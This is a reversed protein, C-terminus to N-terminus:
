ELSSLLVQGCINIQTTPKLSLLLQRTRTWIERATLSLVVFVLHCMSHLREYRDTRNRNRLPHCSSKAQKDKDKDKDEEEEEEEQKKLKTESSQKRKNRSTSGM